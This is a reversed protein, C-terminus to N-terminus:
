LYLLIIINKIQNINFINNIKYLKKFHKIAKELHYDMEATIKNTQSNMDFLDNININLHQLIISNIKKNLNNKTNNFENSIEKKKKKLELFLFYNVLGM